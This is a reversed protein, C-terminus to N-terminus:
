YNIVPFFLAKGKPVTVTRVVDSGYTGTLFFFKNGPGIGNAQGAAAYAGTADLVPNTNTGNVDVAPQAFVWQWWQASLHAYKAEGHQQKGNNQASATMAPILTAATVTVVAVFTQWKSQVSIM